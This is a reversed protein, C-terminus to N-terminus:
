ADTTTAFLTAKYTTAFPKSNYVNAVLTGTKVDHFIQRCVDTNQRQCAPCTEQGKAYKAFLAMIQELGPGVNDSM